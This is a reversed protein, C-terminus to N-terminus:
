AFSHGNLFFFQLIQSLHEARYPSQTEQLPPNQATSRIVPLSNDFQSSTSVRLIRPRRTANKTARPLRPQWNIRQSRAYPIYSCLKPQFHSQLHHLITFESLEADVQRPPIALRHITQNRRSLALIADPFMSLFFHLKAM